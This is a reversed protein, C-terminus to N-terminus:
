GTKLPPSTGGITYFVVPSTTPQVVPPPTAPPEAPLRLTTFVDKIEEETMEPPQDLKPLNREKRRTARPWERM